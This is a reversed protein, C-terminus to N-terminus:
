TSARIVLQTACVASEDEEGLGEIRRLLIEALAKTMEELPQRVTTLPPDTFAADAIDDFGIVAVDEPVRRGAAKLARLAGAAMLDSAAFVADLDPARDLLRRTAAAGSEEGFDGVEVPGAPQPLGAALLGDRYGDLRDM